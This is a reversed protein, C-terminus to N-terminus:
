VHIFLCAYSDFTSPLCTIKQTLFILIWNATNLTSPLCNHIKNDFYSHFFSQTGCVSHFTSLLGANFKSDFRPPLILNVTLYLQFIYTDCESDFASPLCAYFESDFTSPLCAYLESDLTSPQCASICKNLIFHSHFVLMFNLLWTSPLCALMVNVTFHFFICIMNLFFCQVTVFNHWVLHFCM